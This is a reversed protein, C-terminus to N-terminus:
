APLVVLDCTGGMTHVTRARAAPLDVHLAPQDGPLGLLGVVRTCARIQGVVLRTATRPASGVAPVDVRCLPDLVRHDTALQHGHPFFVALLQVGDRGPGMDDFGGSTGATVLAHAAQAAEHPGVPVGGGFDDRSGVGVGDLMVTRVPHHAKRGNGGHRHDAIGRAGAVQAQDATRAQAEVVPVTVQRRGARLYPALLGVHGFRGVPVVGAVQHDPTRVHRHGTGRVGVEVGFHAVLARLRHGHRRVEALHHLEAIDPQCRTLARVGRQCQGHAMHHQGLEVAVVRRFVEDIVALLVGVQRHQHQQLIFAALQHGVIEQTGRMQDVVETFGVVGLPLGDQDVAFRAAHHRGVAGDTEAPTLVLGVGALHAAPVEFHAIAARALFDVRQQAQLIRVVLHHGHVESVETALLVGQQRAVYRHLEQRQGIAALYTDSGHVVQLQGVVAHVLAETAGIHRLGVLVVHGARRGPLLLMGPHRGLAHDLHGALKRLVRVVRLAAAHDDDPGAQVVPIVGVHGIAADDVQQHHAAAHALAPAAPRVVHALFFQARLEAPCRQGKRQVPRTRRAVHVAGTEEIGVGALVTVLLQM